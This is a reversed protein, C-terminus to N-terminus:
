KSIVMMRKYEDLFHKGAFECIAKTRYCLRSCGSSLTTVYAYYSVNFRFGSPNNKDVEMDMWPIWKKQDSNNWDPEWIKGTEPDRNLAEAVIYMKATSILAVQHKEPFMSVDPLIGEPHGLDKFADEVSMIEPIDDPDLVYGRCLDIFEKSKQITKQM